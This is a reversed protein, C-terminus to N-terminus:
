GQRNDGNSGGKAAALAAKAKKYLADREEKVMEKVQSESMSLKGAFATLTRLEGAAVNGDALSMVILGRLMGEAEEASSPKPAELRGTRAAELLELVKERPVGRGRAYEHIYEAEATEESGDSLMAAAMVSLADAPSLAGAWDHGKPRAMLPAPEEPAAPAPPAGLAPAPAEAVAPRQWAGEPVIDEVVWHRSGDNFPAKCYECAATAAASPAGCSACRLSSLGSRADTRVGSKRALIFVHRCVASERAGSGPEQIAASWKVLVHCHDFTAGKEVALLEVGGVAPDHFTLSKALEARLTDQCYYSTAVPLLPEARGESLARQWRWFAVSARDEAYQASFAADEASFAALGPVARGGRTSWECAQTIECLVWDHEASNVWSKCAGCQASDAIQLPAGCSPCYGEILGAKQLTKAGPRRLFSWVEVFEEPQGTGRLRSGSSLAVDTDVASARVRVHLTDFGRDSEVELISKDVVRVDSMDNRVGRAKLAGLQLSFREMVGDSVFPRAPAMDQASWAAQVKVFAAEVRSLFAQADFAPDREKLRAMAAAMASVSQVEAARNIVYSTYGSRGTSSGKIVAWVILGTVFFMPVPYRRVLGLYLRVLADDGRGSRYSSRGSGGSYSRGGGSYGRGGGGSYSHGGGARAHADTACAAALLGCLALWRM